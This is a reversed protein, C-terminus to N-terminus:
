KKENQTYIKQFNKQYIDDYQDGEYEESNCGKRKVTGHIRRVGVIGIKTGLGEFSRKIKVKM